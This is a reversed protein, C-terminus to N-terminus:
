DLPLQEYDLPPPEELSGTGEQDSGSLVSGQHNNGAGVPAQAAGHEEGYEDIRIQGFFEIIDQVSGAQNSAQHQNNPYRFAPRRQRQNSQNHPQPQSAPQFVPLLPPPPRVAGSNNSEGSGTLALLSQFASCRRMMNQVSSSGDNRYGRIPPGSENEIDNLDSENTTHVNYPQILPFLSRRAADWDADGVLPVPQRPNTVSYRQPPQQTDRRPAPPPPPPPSVDRSSSGGELLNWAREVKRREKNLALQLHLNEDQQTMLNNKINRKKVDLAVLEEDLEQFRDYLALIRDAWAGLPLDKPAKSVGSAGPAAAGGAAGDSGAEGGGQASPPDRPLQLNEQRAVEWLKELTEM